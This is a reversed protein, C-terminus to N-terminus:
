PAVCEVAREFSVLLRILANYRSHASDSDEAALREYLRHEAGTEIGPVAIGARRLRPAGILVVLSAETERSAALDDLGQEILPGGPLRAFETVVENYLARIRHRGKGAYGTVRM